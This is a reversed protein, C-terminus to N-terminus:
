YDFCQDGGQAYLLVYLPLSETRYLSLGEGGFLVLFVPNLVM